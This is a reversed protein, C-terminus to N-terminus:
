YTFVIQNTRNDIHVFNKSIGVSLKYKLAAKVIKARLTSDACHLDIARGQLHYSTKSGGVSRNYNENRFSSNIHLPENVISRILDLKMLIDSDMKHFVNERGMMFESEDFYRM